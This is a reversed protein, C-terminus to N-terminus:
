NITINEGQRITDKVSTINLILPEKVPYSGLAQFSNLIFDSAQIQYQVTTGSSQGPITANCTQGSIAMNIINTSAWNDTTYFLQATQLSANNSTFALKTANGPYVRAPFTTPTLSINGFQTKMMIEASGSGQEGIIVVHYLNEGALPSTYNLFMEQGNQECSAYAVGRYGNSDFNYGGVSGSLSGYLGPEWPLPISNLSSSQPDNMLYLRAEYLDLTDPVRVHLEIYSANTIFEYSIYRDLNFGTNNTGELYTTYWQRM